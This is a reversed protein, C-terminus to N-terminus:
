VAKKGRTAAFVYEKIPLDLVENAEVLDARAAEPSDPMIVDIYKMSSYPIFYVKTHRALPREEYQGSVSDRVEQFHRGSITLGAASVQTVTGRMIDVPMERFHRRLVIRVRSELLNDPTTSM